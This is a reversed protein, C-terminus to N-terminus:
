AQLVLNDKDIAHRFNHLTSLPEVETRQHDNSIPLSPDADPFSLGSFHRDRDGLRNFLGFFVQDMDSEGGSRNRVLYMSHKARFMYKELRRLFPRPNNCSTCNSRHDLNGADMVDNRLGQATSIRKIRDAGCEMTEALEAISFINEGHTPISYTVCLRSHAGLARLL